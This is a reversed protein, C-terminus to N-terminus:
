PRWVEAGEAEAAERLRRDLTALPAGTRVALEVSAADYASLERRRALRHVAALGRGRRVPDPVIPLSLLSEVVSRVEGAEIRGRREAVLLANSVELEWHAAVVAEDHRLAELVTDAYASEEDDLVWAVAVSADLVLSM